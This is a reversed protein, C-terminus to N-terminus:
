CEKIYKVELSLGDISAEKIEATNNGAAVTLTQGAVSKSEATALPYILTVPTGANYQSALWAKWQVLGNFDTDKIMLFGETYGAKDGIKASHNPMNALSETSTTFHTSAIEHAINDMLSDPLMLQYMQHQDAYDIWGSERGTLIILGLKLTVGGALIEHEDIFDTMGFLNECTALGGDYYPSYATATSGAEIQVNVPETPLIDGSPTAKNRVCIMLKDTAALTFTKAQYWANESTGNLQFLMEYDSACSITYTGAAFTLPKPTRIRITTNSFNGNFVVGQEFVGNFLNVNDASHIGVKEVTGDVTYPIAVPTVPKEAGATFTGTGANTFFTKSVTDFMGIVGDSNRKAAIGNFVVTGSQRITYYKMSVTAGNVFESTSVNYRCFIPLVETTQFNVMDSYAKLVGDATVGNKNQITHHWDTDLFGNDVPNVSSSSFRWAVSNTTNLYASIVQTNGTRIIGYLFGAKTIDTRQWETEVETDQNVTLGTNIYQTGTSEIYELETYDAGCTFTGSGANAFWQQRILDYMGYEGTSIKKVPIMDCTGAVTFRYIRGVAPAANTGVSGQNNRSNLWFNLTPATVNAFTNTGLSVGDKKIEMLGNNLIYEYIGGKTAADTITWRNDATSGCWATTISAASVFTEQGAYANSPRQGFAMWSYSSIDVLQGKFYMNANFPLVLGTDIYSAKITPDSTSDASYGQIYEVQQYDAPLYPAIFQGTGANYYCKGEAKDYMCPINQSDLAPIFDRVLTGNEYIKASYIKGSMPANQGNSDFLYISKTANFVDPCAIINEALVTGNADCIRRATKSNELKYITNMSYPSYSARYVSLDASNNFNVLLANSSGTAFTFYNAYASDRCGMICKSQTTSLSVTATIKTNSTPVIGTDIYQTGTSELYELPHIAKVAGNNCWIDLPRAPTPDTVANGATFTGTGANTYFQKRVKDWMGISDDVLRKAPIMDCIGDVKFRYLRYSWDGAQQSGANNMSGLWMAIDCTTTPTYQKTGISTGNKIIEQLSNKFTVEYVDGATNVNSLQWRYEAGTATFFFSDIRTNSGSGVFFGVGDNGGNTTRAGFAAFSGTTQTLAAVKVYYSMASTPVIGTNIYQSGSSGQIYELEQYGEPVNRTETGGFAKVYKLSDEGAETYADQLSLPSSGNVVLQIYNSLLIWFKLKDRLTM